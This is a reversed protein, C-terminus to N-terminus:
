EDLKFTPCSWDDIDSKKLEELVVNLNNKHKNVNNGLVGEQAKELKKYAEDTLVLVSNSKRKKAFDDLVKTIYNKDQFTPLEAEDPSLNDYVSDTDNNDDNSGEDSTENKINIESYALKSQKAKARKQIHSIHHHNEINTLYNFFTKKWSNYNIEMIKNTTIYLNAESYSVKLDNKKLHFIPSKNYKDFVEKHKVKFASLANKYLLYKCRKIHSITDVEFHTNDTKHTLYTEM